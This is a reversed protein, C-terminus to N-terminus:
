VRTSASPGCRSRKPDPAFGEAGQRYLLRLARQSDLHGQAASLLWWQEARGRRVPLGMGNLYLQGLAFQGM